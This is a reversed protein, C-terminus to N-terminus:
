SGEMWEPNGALTSEMDRRFQDPDAAFGAPGFEYYIPMERARERVSDTRERNNIGTEAVGPIVKTPAPTAPAVPAAADTDSLTAADLSGPEAPLEPALLVESAVEPSTVVPDPEEAGSPLILSGVGIALCTASACVIHADPLWGVWQGARVRLRRWAIVLAPIAILQKKKDDPEEDVVAFYERRLAQRARFLLPPVTTPATGLRKAIDDYSLEERERMELINRHRERVRELAQHVEQEDAERMLQSDPADAAAEGEVDALLFVRATARHHEVTLHRAIVALWPYFRSPDRLNDLSALARAFAEQTLDEAVEATRVRYRVFRLLRAVHRRYLEDFATVDGARHREVLQHDVADELSNLHFSMSVFGRTGVPPPGSM